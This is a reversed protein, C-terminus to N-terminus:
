PAAVGSVAAKSVVLMVQEVPAEQSTPSQPAETDEESLSSLVAEVAFLVEPTCQHDKSWKVGCKFCLGLARRYAKL